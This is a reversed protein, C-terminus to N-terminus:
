WDLHKLSMTFMGGAIFGMAVVVAFAYWPMAGHFGIVYVSGAFCLALISAIRNLGRHRRRYAGDEGRVKYATTDLETDTPRKSAM